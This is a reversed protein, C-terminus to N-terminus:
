KDMQKVYEYVLFYNSLDQEDLGRFKFLEDYLISSGEIHFYGTEMDVCVIIDIGKFVKDQKKYLREGRGKNLVKFSVIRPTKGKELKEMSFDNEMMEETVMNEFQRDDIEKLSYSNKLYEVLEYSSKRNPKLKGKYESYVRKWKRIMEETPMETLM